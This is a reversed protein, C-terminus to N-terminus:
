ATTFHKARRKKCDACNDPSEHSHDERPGAYLWKMCMSKLSGKQFFHAKRSNMPFGWGQPLTEQEETTDM